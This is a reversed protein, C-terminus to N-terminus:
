RKAARCIQPPHGWSFSNACSRQLLYNRQKRLMGKSFLSALLQYSTLCISKSSFLVNSFLHIILLCSDTALFSNKPSKLHVFLYLKCDQKGQFNGILQIEYRVKSVGFITISPAQNARIKNEKRILFCNYYIPTIDNLFFFTVFLLPTLARWFDSNLYPLQRIRSTHRMYRPNIGQELFM